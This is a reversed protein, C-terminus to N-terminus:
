ERRRAKDQKAIETEVISNLRAAAPWGAYHALFVVIERLTDGDLDGSKLAAPVQITLVDHGATATLIGILMLRRDRDSLGPRSWVDAFLHDATYRWFEGEGDGFPMSYVEEMRALARQRVEEPSETPETV